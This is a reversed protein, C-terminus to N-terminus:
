AWVRYQPQTPNFAVTDLLATQEPTVEGTLRVNVYFEPYSAGNWEIPGIRDILVTESAVLGASALLADFAAEDALKLSYDIM